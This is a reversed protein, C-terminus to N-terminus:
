SGGLCLRVALASIPLVAGGGVPKESLPLNDSNHKVVYLPFGKHAGQGFNSAQCVYPVRIDSHIKPLMLRM